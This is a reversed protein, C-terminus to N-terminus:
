IKEKVFNVFDTTIEEGVQFWFPHSIHMVRHFGSEYNKWKTEVGAAELRKAYFIGDDRISDFGCTAIFASPLGTMDERFLPTWRPDLYLRALSEWLTSNGADMRQAPTVYSKTKARIAEPIVDHNLYKMFRSSDKFSATLHQNSILQHIYLPDARGIHYMSYFAAVRTAPLIGQNGFDEAYRQYSPTQFDMSQTAPYILVQLKLDPTSDDDHIIQSIVASLHGGASDGSIGIRAPDLGFESAHRLLYRTAALCDELGAPFPHEPSLRYDISMVFMDLRESLYRTFRDYGDASGLAYGGGHIYIMGPLSEKGRKITEYVRVRVGDFNTVKSRINSGPVEFPMPYNQMDRVARVTQIYANENDPHVYTSIKGALTSVSMYAVLMRYKWPEALGDPVPIRLLFALAAGSIALLIWPSKM